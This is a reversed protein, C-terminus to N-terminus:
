KEDDSQDGAPFNNMSILVTWLIAGNEDDTMSLLWVIVLVDVERLIAFSPRLVVHIVELLGLDIPFGDFRLLDERRSFRLVTVPWSKRNLRQRIIKLLLHM